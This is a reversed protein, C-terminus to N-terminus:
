EQGILFDEITLLEKCMETAMFTKSFNKLLTLIIIHSGKIVRTAFIM